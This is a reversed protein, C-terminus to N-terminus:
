PKPRVTVTDGLLLMRQIRREGLTKMGQIAVLLSPLPPPDSPSLVCYYGGARDWATTRQAKEGGAEGSRACLCPRFCGRGTRERFSYAGGALTEGSTQQM